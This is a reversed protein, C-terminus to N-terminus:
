DGEIIYKIEKSTNKIIKSIKRKQKENLVDFKVFAIRLADKLEEIGIKEFERIKNMHEIIERLKDKRKNLYRLGKLTIKYFKKNQKNKESKILGEEELEFLLPYVIGTSTKKGRDESIRKMLAYGHIKGEKMYNLLMLKIAEKIKLEKIDEFMDSSIDFSIFIKRGM